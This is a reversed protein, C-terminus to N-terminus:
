KVPETTTDPPADAVPTPPVDKRRRTRRAREPQPKAQQEREGRRLPLFAVRPYWEPPIGDDNAM